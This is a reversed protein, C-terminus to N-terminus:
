RIWSTGPTPVNKMSPDDNRRGCPIAIVQTVCPIEFLYRGAAGEPPRGPKKADYLDRIEDVFADELTHIKPM